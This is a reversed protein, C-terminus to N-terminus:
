PSPLTVVFDRNFDRFANTVVVFPPNIVIDDFRRRRQFQQLTVIGSSNVTVTLQGNNSPVIVMQLASGGAALQSPTFPVNTFTFTQSFAFCLAQNPPCRGTYSVTMLNNGADAISLTEIPLSSGVPIWSGIFPNPVATATPTSTPVPTFTSTSTATPLPTDTPTPTATPAPNSAVVVGVVIAVIVLVAIIIAPILWPPLKREEVVPAPITFQAEPSETFNDDPNIEDAVILKLKYSGPAVDAPVTVQVEFTTSGDIAIDRVAPNDTTVGSPPLITAWSDSNPAEIVVRATARVRRRTLNKVTFVAVGERKNDLVVVNSPATIDFPSPM